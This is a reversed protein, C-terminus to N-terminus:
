AIALFSAALDGEFALVDAQHARLLQVIASTPGNGIRLWIVKPPPGYLLARHQFDIDKSVIMYGNAIAFDWIDQDAARALGHDRVHQSGPYEAARLNPLWHSLNEDFLLTM